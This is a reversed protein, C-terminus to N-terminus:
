RATPEAPVGLESLLRRVKEKIADRIERVKTMPQGAPDDVTWDEYRKGVFVPCADGCGMTVVADSARVFDDSLRKPYEESLDIGIEKMAAHVNPHISSAPASGASLVVVRGNGLVRAFAAAMQSRGANHVCVFLVQPKTVPIKGKWRAASLLLDRAFRRAFIPRYLEIRAEPLMELALYVHHRVTAPDYVGAFEHALEAAERDLRQELLPDVEQTM